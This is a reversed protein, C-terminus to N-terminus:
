SFARSMRRRVQGAKDATEGDFWITLTMRMLWRLSDVLGPQVLAARVANGQAPLKQGYRAQLFAKKRIGAAKAKMKLEHQNAYVEPYADFHAFVTELWEDAWNGTQTKCGSWKREASLPYPLYRSQAEYHHWCRLFYEFDMVYFLEEKLLGTELITRRHTFVSPQAMSFGFLIAEKNFQSMDRRKMFQSGENVVLSDGFALALDPQEAFAEGVPRLSNPPYYDDSNLWTIVDGTAREWGKNIAHTQGRDKESVWEDIWSEYKKIIEVTQDNSGGDMIFYELNPYGQLLISRITEEIFQGQNYSPTVITIRPWSRGDAMTEPLPECGETWPWGTKGAPPAPLDAITPVSM